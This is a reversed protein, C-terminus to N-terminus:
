CRQMLFLDISRYVAHTTSSRDLDNKDNLKVHRLRSTDAYNYSDLLLNPKIFPLATKADIPQWEGEAYRYAVWVPERAYGALCRTTLRGVVWYSEDVLDVRAAIRHPARWVIKEGTAPDRFSLREELAWKVTGHGLEGGRRHKISRAVTLTSGDSLQVDERWRTTLTTVNVAWVAVVLGIAGLLLVTINKFSVGAQVHMVDPAARSGGAVARDAATYVCWLGAIWLPVAPILSFVGAVSLAFLEEHGSLGGAIFPLFVGAIV